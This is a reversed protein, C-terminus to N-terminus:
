SKAQKWMIDFYAKFSRAISEGHLLIILPEKELLVIATKNSYILTESPCPSLYLPQECLYGYRKRKEM